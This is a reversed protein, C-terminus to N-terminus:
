SIDRTPPHPGFWQDLVSLGRQYDIPPLEALEPEPLPEHVIEPRLTHWEPGVLRDLETSFRETAIDRLLQVHGKQSRNYFPLQSGDLTSATGPLVIHTHVQHLREEDSEDENTLRDHVVFSYLPKDVGRAEYYSEVVDETLAIVLPEREAEPVLAMLDPAPSLVWTWALVKESSLSACNDLIERYNTGLGHDQWRELGQEQPIHGDADDRYQFYKLKASMEKYGNSSGGRRGKHSTYALDPVIIAKSM